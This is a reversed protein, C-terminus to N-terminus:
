AMPAPRINKTSYLLRKGSGAFHKIGNKGKQKPLGFLRNELRRPGAFLYYQQQKQSNAVAKALSLGANPPRWFPKLPFRPRRKRSRREILRFKRVNAFHSSASAYYAGKKRRGTKTSSPAPAFLDGRTHIQRGWCFEDLKSFAALGNKEKEGRSYLFYRDSTLFLISGALANEGRAGKM